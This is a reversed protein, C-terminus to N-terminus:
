KIIKKSRNFLKNVLIFFLPVYYIAFITASLMGGIVAIGVANQSAAGAGSSLALPLVGFIFAFSTMLIPRLRLHCAEITADFVSKGEKDIGDKAFEVILIANKAALGMTTLLGVIFYVDNSLGSILTLVVTGVVGLPLVFLVSIPITWSEYLAALALFIIVGSIIFLFMQQNGTQQEQYSVDTWQYNYGDKRLKDAYQAFLKMADGTSANGLPQGNISMAPYTNYRQLNPAGYSPEIKAIASFPVMQNSSNKIQWQEFDTASMRSSVQGQLYVKRNSNNYSFDDIYSSGFAMGLLSNIDNISVGMAQAAEFDIVVKYEAVDPLTYPIAVAKGTQSLEAILKYYTQVFEAHNNGGVNQLIFSIGSSTGLGPVSPLNSAITSVGVLEQSLLNQVRAIVAAAKEDEATRLSWDKLKVFGMGMNLGTGLFSFGSVTFLTEVDKKESELILNTAKALVEETEALTSNTPLQFMVFFVGQDEAPLFSSKLKTYGFIMVLIILAYGLLSLIPHTIVHKVGNIYHTACFEYTKNFLNFFGQLWSFPPHKSWKQFFSTKKNELGEEDSHAKLFQVCLAPALIIALLVSLVMAVVITISFQRYIGGAAGGFFAMPLFVASLVVGIGVLAGTIQQMSLVTAEYPSKHEEIIIREVNEVVVIADDVLLGIALVMAFMTLTNITFGIVYLVSFTGLLVVPVVILPILTARLNQLFLYIIAVVLVIAEILTHVVNDISLEVFQTTDYPYSYQVDSPLTQAIEAMKADVLKSTKVQNAGSALTIAMGAAVQSNYRSSFSYNDAGLEVKGLDRLYINAGDTTTLVLIDEFQKTNQLRGQGTVTMNIGQGQAAPPSGIQGISVQANQGSVAATVQDLSLNYYALKYPDLWIRMAYSAGFLQTGGVGDINAIEQQVNNYIIDALDVSSRNPDTSYFSAIKLFSGTNNDVTVGYKQVTEPLQSLVTQVKNNVKNQSQNIDTGNAFTLTITVSGSSSSSSSMYLMNEIGTLQREILQTVTNDLTEADAGPYTATITVKPPALEPYQEIAMNNLSLYGMMMILIAIVWAFIPRDIFFKAM